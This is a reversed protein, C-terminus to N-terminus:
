NCKQYARFQCQNDKDLHVFTNEQAGVCQNKAQYVRSWLLCLYGYWIIKAAVKARRAKESDEYIIKTLKRRPKDKPIPTPDIIEQAEENHDDVQPDKNANEHGVPSLM